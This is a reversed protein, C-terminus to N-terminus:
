VAGRVWFHQGDWGADRGHVWVTVRTGEIDMGAMLARFQGRHRLGNLIQFAEDQRGIKAAAGGPEHLEPPDDLCGCEAPRRLEKISPAAEEEAEEAGSDAAANDDTGGDFDGIGPFEGDAVVGPDAIVGREVGESFNADAVVGADGLM